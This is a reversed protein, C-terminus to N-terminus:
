LDENRRERDGKAIEQLLTMIDRGTSVVPDVLPGTAPLDKVTHATAPAVRSLPGTHTTLTARKYLREYAEPDRLLDIIDEKTSSKVKGRMLKVAASVQSPRYMQAHSSVMPIVTNAVNKYYENLSEPSIPNNALSAAIDNAMTLHIRRLTYDGTADGLTAFEEPGLMEKLVKTFPSNSRITDVSGEETLRKGFVVNATMLDDMDIGDRIAATLGDKAARKLTDNDLSRYYDAAENLYPIVNAGWDTGTTSPTRVMSYFNDFVDAAGAAEAYNALLPKYEGSAKRDILDVISKKANVLAARVDKDVSTSPDIMQGPALLSDIDKKLSLLGRVSLEDNTIVKNSAYDQIKGIVKKTKEPLEVFYKETRKALANNNLARRVENRQTMIDGHKDAFMTYRASEPRVDDLLKGRRQTASADGLIASLTGRYAAENAETISNIAESTMALRKAVEDTDRLPSMPLAAMAINSNYIAAPDVNALSKGSAASELLEHPRLGRGTSLPSSVENVLLDKATKGGAFWDVAEGIGQGFVGLLGDVILNPTGPLLQSTDGNIARTVAGEVASAGAGTTLRLGVGPMKSAAPNFLRNAWKLTQAGLMGPGGLMAGTMTGAIQSLRNNESIREKFDAAFQDRSTPANFMAADAANLGFSLLPDMVSGPERAATYGQGMINAVPQELVRAARQVKVAQDAGKTLPVSFQTGNHIAANVLNNLTENGTDGATPRESVYKAKSQALLSSDSM